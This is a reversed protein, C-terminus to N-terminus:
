LNCNKTDPISKLIGIGSVKQYGGNKTNRYGIGSFIPFIGIGTGISVPCGDRSGWGQGGMGLSGGREVGTGPGEWDRAGRM